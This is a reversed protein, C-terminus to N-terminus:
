GIKAMVATAMEADHGSYHATMEVTDKDTRKITMQYDGAQRGDIKVRFDRIETEDARADSSDALLLFGGCILTQMTATMWVRRAGYHAM